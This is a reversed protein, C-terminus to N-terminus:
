CNITGTIRLDFKLGLTRTRSSRSDWTSGFSADHNVRYRKNSEGM